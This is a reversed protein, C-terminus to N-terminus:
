FRDSLAAGSSGVRARNVQSARLAQDAHRESDEGQRRQLRQTPMNVLGETLV